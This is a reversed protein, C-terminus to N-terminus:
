LDLVLRPSHARSCCPLFQDNAAQEEPTLYLDRHDIKGALVRTLCTGCVGQQCSTQVQVGATALADVVTQAPGVRVVSGSRNLLVEFSGDEVKSAVLNSFYEYHLASSRWGRLQARARVADLFGQPGCVYLHSAADTSSLIIDLDPRQAAPSDDHYIHVRDKFPSQRMRQLFAARSATRTCYHLEFSAGIARLREAMALIPTVGIGGALLVSHHAEEHLPFHNRPWGITITDGERVREHMGISGGRSAAGRLVAILYRHREGPANCLSYQRVPGDPVHV